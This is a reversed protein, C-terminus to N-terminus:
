KQKTQLVSHLAMLLNTRCAASQLRTHYIVAGLTLCITRYQVKPLKLKIFTWVSFVSGTASVNTNANSSRYTLCNTISEYVHILRFINHM